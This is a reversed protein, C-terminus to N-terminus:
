GESAATVVRRRVAIVEDGDAVPARVPRRPVALHAEFFEILRRHYEAGALQIAQNHKAGEVLWFEKPKRARAFLEEAMEPKIYTDAGGHIMLLPRPALRGMVKELDLYRCARQQQHLAICSRAVWEYFWSPLLWQLLRYHPQKSYIKIWKRMYPVMTPFTAFIGDTAFCRVYPDTAAAILGATGGKSIGFLGIGRPDADPRRKLYALAAQVDKVDHDTVWQLPEYGPQVDSDGQGRPEFAFVDYGAALLQECYSVCSWRNSGFELGFLIVGRREPAPTRLYCGSLELDDATLIRVEEAGDAPKGRPIIFLPKEEFIRVIQPTYKRRLYVALLVAGFVSFLPLTTAM